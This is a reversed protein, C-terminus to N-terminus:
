MCNIYGIFDKSENELNKLHYKKIEHIYEQKHICKEFFEENRKIGLNENKYLYQRFM